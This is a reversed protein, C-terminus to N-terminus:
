RGTAAQAATWRERIATDQPRLELARAFREVAESPRGAGLLLDGARVFLRPDKARAAAEDLMRVAAPIDRRDEAVLRAYRLVIPTIQEPKALESARRYAAQARDIRGLAREADGLAAHNPGSLPELELSQQAFDLQDLLPVLQRHEALVKAGEEREGSKLLSQGLGFLAARDLPDKALAKRFWQSAEAHQGRRAARRGAIEDPRPDDAPINERLLSDIEADAEDLRGLAELADVRLCREDVSVRPLVALAEEFRGLAWLARGRLEDEKPRAGGAGDLTEIAAAYRHLAVQWQALERRLAGDEPKQAM